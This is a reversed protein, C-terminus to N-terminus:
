HRGWERELWGEAERASVASDEGLGVSTVVPREQSNLYARLAERVLQAQPRGRRRAEDRLAHQLDSPLYLTTREMLEGYVM